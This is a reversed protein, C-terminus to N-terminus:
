IKELVPKLHAWIASADHRLDESVSCFSVCKLEGDDARYYYAGTHLSVQKKSAGFHVSQVESAYKCKYNESFDMVIYVEKQKLNKKLNSVFKFQHTTDYVHKMYTPLQSNFEETLDQTTSIKRKKTTLQVEYMKGKAGPRVIKETVWQHYFTVETPSDKIIVKKDKCRMCKRYMCDKKSSDCVIQAIVENKSSTNILNISKM